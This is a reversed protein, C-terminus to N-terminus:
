SHSGRSRLRNEASCCTSMAALILAVVLLSDGVNGAQCTDARQRISCSHESLAGLIQQGCVRHGDAQSQDHCLVKLWPGESQVGPGAGCDVNDGNAVHDGDHHSPHMATPHMAHTCAAICSLACLCRTPFLCHLPPMRLHQADDRGRVRDPHIIQVPGHDDNAEYKPETKQRPVAPCMFQLTKTKHMCLGMVAFFPRCSRYGDDCKNSSGRYTKGM